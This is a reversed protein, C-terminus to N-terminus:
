HIYIHRFADHRVIHAPSIGLQIRSRHTEMICTAFIIGRLQSYSLIGSYKWKKTDLSIDRRLLMASEAMRDALQTINCLARVGRCPFIYSMRGTRVPQVSGYRDHTRSAPETYQPNFHRSYHSFNGLMCFCAVSVM